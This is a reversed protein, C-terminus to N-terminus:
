INKGMVDNGTVRFRTDLGFIKAWSNYTNSKFGFSFYNGSIEQGINQSAQNSNNSDFSAEDFFAVDFYSGGLDDLALAVDITDDFSPIAEGLLSSNLTFNISELSDTSWHLYGDYFQLERQSYKWWALYSAWDIAKRREYSTLVTTAGSQSGTITEGNTWTSSSNKVYLITISDSELTATTGSSSGTLTENALFTGAGGSVTLLDRFNEDPNIRDPIVDFYQSDVFLNAIYGDINFGYLNDEDFKVFANFNMDQSFFWYPQNIEEGKKLPHLKNTDIILTKDIDVGSLSVISLIYYRGYYKAKCSGLQGDPIEDLIQQFYNSIIKSSGGKLTPYTGSNREVSANFFRLTKDSALYIYGEQQGYRSFQVTDKSRTGQDADCKPIKWNAIDENANIFAWIGTDKFFFTIQGNDVVKQIGAGEDPSVWFWQGAAGVDFTELNTTNASTQNQTGGYYAKHGSGLILRGSVGSYAMSKVGITTLVATESLVGATATMKYLGDTNNSLYLTEVGGLAYMWFEWDSTINKGTSVDVITTSNLYRLRAASDVWVTFKNTGDNFLGAGYVKNIIDKILGFGRRTQLFSVSGSTRFEMNKNYQLTGFPLSLINNGETHITGLFTKLEPGDVIKNAGSQRFFSKQQNNRSVSFSM